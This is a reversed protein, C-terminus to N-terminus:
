IDGVLLSRLSSLIIGLKPRRSPETRLCSQILAKFHAPMDEEDIVFYEEHEMGIPINVNKRTAIEWFLAGLSYIDATQLIDISLKERDENFWIEPACWGYTVGQGGLDIILAETREGIVVNSSKLDLHALKAYHIDRLGSAIQLAWRLRQDLSLPITFDGLLKSLSGKSAYTLLIGRVIPPPQSIKNTLYPKASYVLGQISIINPSNSLLVLSEIEHKQSAIDDPTNPEKYVFEEQEVTVKHIAKYPGIKSGNEGIGHVEKLPVVRIWPYRERFCDLPSFHIAAHDDEQIFCQLDDLPNDMYPQLPRRLAEMVCHGYIDSNEKDIATRLLVRTITDDVLPLMSFDVVQQFLHTLSTKREM